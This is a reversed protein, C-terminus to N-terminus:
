RRHHARIESFVDAAPRGQATGSEVERLRRQLEADWATQADSAAPGDIADILRRAIKARESEALALAAIGRLIVSDAFRPPRAQRHSGKGGEVAAFRASELDAILQRIKRPM